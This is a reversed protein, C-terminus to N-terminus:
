LRPTPKAKTTPGWGSIRWSYSYEIVRFTDVRVGDEMKPQFTIKKAADAALQGLEKTLGSIVVVKGVKGNALFEIRLRVVGQVDLMGYGKPLEPKPRKLICLPTNQASAFLPLAFLMLFAVHTFLKM